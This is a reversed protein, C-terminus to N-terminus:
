QTPIVMSVGVAASRGSNRYSHSQNGSFALVDGPKVLFADGAVYVTVEGQLTSFYEKTGTLHPQGGFVGGPPIEMRDLEIGRVRDPMLKFIKVSNRSIVKLNKAPILVVESRPKSLLEEIGVGLAQSIKLLNQLSPNGSGSEIHTLTSRPVEALRALQQQNLGRKTRLKEINMGLHRAVDQM